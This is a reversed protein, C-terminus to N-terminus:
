KIKIENHIELDNFLADESTEEYHNQQSHTSSTLLKVILLEEVGYLAVAVLIFQDNDDNHNFYLPAVNFSCSLIRSPCTFSSVLSNGKTM